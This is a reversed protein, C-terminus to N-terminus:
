QINDFEVKNRALIPKETGSLLFGDLYNPRAWADWPYLGLCAKLFKEVIKGGIIKTGIFGAARRASLDNLLELYEIDHNGAYEWGQLKFSDLTLFQVSIVDEKTLAVEDFSENYEKVTLACFFSQMASEEYSIVHGLVRVQESLRITFLTGTTISKRQM